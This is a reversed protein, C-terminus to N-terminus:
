FYDNEHLNKLVEDETITINPGLDKLKNITDM